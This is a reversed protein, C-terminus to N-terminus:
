TFGRFETRTDAAGQSWVPARRRQSWRAGGAAVAAAANGPHGAALHWLAACGHMQVGWVGRHASMAAVVTQVGGAAEAAARNGAHGEALAALANCGNEQVRESGRHAHLAGVVAQVGGAAGLEDKCGEEVLVCVRKCAAAALTADGASTVNLRRLTAVALVSLAIRSGRGLRAHAAAGATEEVAPKGQCAGM